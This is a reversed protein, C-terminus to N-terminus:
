HTFGELFDRFHEVQCKSHATTQQAPQMGLEDSVQHIIMNCDSVSNSM